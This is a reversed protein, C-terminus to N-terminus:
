SRVGFDAVFTAGGRVGRVPAGRAAGIGVDRFSPDLINRRHPPSAMWAAVVGAPTADAGTGWAIDEGLAWTAAHRLYSTRAIRSVPTSGSPSVHSFFRRRAMTHAYRAAARGLAGSARLPPLGHAARQADLLCLIARDVLARDRATVAAAADACAPVQPTPPLPPLLGARAAPALALACLCAAALLTTPRHM